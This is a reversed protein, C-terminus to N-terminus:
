LAGKGLGEANMGYRVENHETVGEGSSCRGWAKSLKQWIEGANAVELWTHTAVRGDM